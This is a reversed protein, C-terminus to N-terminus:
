EGWGADVLYERLTYPEFPVAERFAEPDAEVTALFRMFAAFGEDLSALPVRVPEVERGLVDAFVDALEALALREAVLPVAVGAFAEPDALAAAATRGIDRPDVTAHRAGEPLPFALRGAEIEARQREFNSHFSFPRLVTADPFAAWVATEVDGKADVHPIGPTTHAAGGSSFVYREVAADAAAAVLTRGQARETAPDGATVGFVADVGAVAADMAARDTMDGAVVAVGRERLRRAGAGDADRTLGRVEFEGFAGSALADVVAGGQTGTAGAVLVTPRGGDSRGGGDTRQQGTM